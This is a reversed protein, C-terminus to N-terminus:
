NKKTVFFVFAALTVRMSARVCGGEDCFYPPQSVVFTIMNECGWRYLHAASPVELLTKQAPPSGRSGSGQGFFGGGGPSLGGGGM